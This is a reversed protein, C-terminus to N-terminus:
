GASSASELSAGAGGFGTFCIFGLAEFGEETGFAEFGEDVGFTERAFGRAVAGGSTLTCESSRERMELDSLNFFGM